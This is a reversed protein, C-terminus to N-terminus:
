NQNVRVAEHIPVPLAQPQRAALQGQGAQQLLGDFAALAAHDRREPWLVLLLAPLLFVAPLWPHWFGALLGLGILLGLLLRRFPFSSNTM